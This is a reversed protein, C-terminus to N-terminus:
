EKHLLPSTRCLPILSPGKDPPNDDPEYTFVSKFQENLLEAKDLSDTVTNDDLRLSAISVQDRRINKIYSWLKKQCRPPQNDDNPPLILTNIYRWYSTRIETQIRHKLIKFNNYAETSKSRKYLKYQTDRKKILKRTHNTIWPLHQRRNTAKCPIYKATLDLM